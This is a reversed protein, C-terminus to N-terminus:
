RCKTVTTKCSGPPATGSQCYKLANQNAQQAGGGGGAAYWYGGQRSEAYAVCKDKTTWFTKCGQGAGGCGNVALNQADQATAYHTAYGWRGQANTAFASFEGRAPEGGGAVVDGIPKSQPKVGGGGPKSQTSAIGGVPPVNAALVGDKEGNWNGPPAYRCVWFENGGCTAAGCGLQKTDRWILQTFHRVEKKSDTDGAKYSTIPDNFNYQKIENYWWRAAVEAGTYGAGSGWYLNEGYGGGFAGPSHAFGNGKKTCASAWEQAGKSLDASWSLAPTKHAARYNNHAKLMTTQDSAQGPDGPICKPDVGCKLCRPGQGPVMESELCAECQGTCTVTPPTGIVAFASDSSGMFALVVLALFVARMPAEKKDPLGCTVGCDYCANRTADEVSM